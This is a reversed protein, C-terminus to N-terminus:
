TTYETISRLVMDAVSCIDGVGGVGAAADL